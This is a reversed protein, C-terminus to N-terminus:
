SLVGGQPLYPSTNTWAIAVVEDFTKATELRSKLFQAHGFHAMGQTYMSAYFSKWDNLTAISIRENDTTKWYGIWGPPLGGLSLIIGQMGDIDSRSLQDCAIKKGQHMFFGNNARLRAENISSNVRDKEAAIVAEVEAPTFAIVEWQKRLVGNVEAPTVAVVNQFRSTIPQNSHFVRKYGPWDQKDISATTILGLAEVVEWVSVPWALVQGAEDVKAFYSFNLVSDETSM